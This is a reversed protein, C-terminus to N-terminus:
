KKSSWPHEHNCLRKTQGRCINCDENAELVLVDVDDTPQVPPAVQKRYEGPPVLIYTDLAAIAEFLDRQAIRIESETVSGKQIINRLLDKVRSTKTHATVLGTVGLGNTLYPTEESMASAADM